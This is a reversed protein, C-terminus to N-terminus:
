EASKLNVAASVPDIAVAEDATLGALVEVQNDPLTKGLRIQRFRLQEDTWVYVGTVESRYAVSKLPIVLAKHEGTVFAVKVFMGPFLSEEKGPIAVRVKFTNTSPDAYPFLTLKKSVKVAGSDLVISAERHKRISGALSQPVNVSVRLKELSIGTMLRTGPAVTEGPEVFRQTVIGSYPAHVKTYSLQEEAQQLAAEASNLRAKAAKLNAEAQDFESKSVLNQKYVKDIRVFTSESDTLRAMAETLGAEAAALNAQHSRDVIELVLQGKRVFDDVDYNLSKIQGSTQASITSQQVAEVVGDLFFQEKIPKITATALEQAQLSVSFGALLLGGLTYRSLHLWDM